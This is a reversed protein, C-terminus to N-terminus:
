IHGSEYDSLGSVAKYGPPNPVLTVTADFIRLNDPSSEITAALSEPAILYEPHAYTM